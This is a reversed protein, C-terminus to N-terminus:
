KKRGWIFALTISLTFLATSGYQYASFSTELVHPNTRLLEIGFRSATHLGLGIAFLQGDYKKNKSLKYLIAITLLDTLTHYAPTPHVPGHNDNPLDVGWPLNTPTGYCADGALLCGVRAIGHFLLGPMILADLFKRVPIKKAKAYTLMTLTGPVIGGFWSFGFFDKAGEPKINKLVESFTQMQNGMEEIHYLGLAGLGAALLGWLYAKVTKNEDIGERQACAKIAATSVAAALFAMLGYSKLYYDYFHDKIGNGQYDKIEIEPHPLCNIALASTGLKASLRRPLFALEVMAANTKYSVRNLTRRIPALSVM